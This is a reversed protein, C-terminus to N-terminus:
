KEPAGARRSEWEDRLLGMCIVDDYAGDSYEHQRLRGEEQFGLSRYCRIARENRALTELWIRRFNQIRFAWDLLVAIADRGYGKGLYDRDYIGVGVGATGARRNRWRHLETTGIVKGDAEIAFYSKDEDEVHKDFDKEEAALSWPEWAGGGLMVLDTNASLEHLRKLDEREVPRLIVKEGHLM